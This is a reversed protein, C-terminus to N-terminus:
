VRVSAQFLYDEQNELCIEDHLYIVYLPGKPKLSHKKVYAAMRQPLDVADGYYGRAYGVLYKGAPKVDAGNPDVSFFHGPQASDDVFTEFDDFMGGVPFRLDIGKDKARNCFRTFADYFYSSDGFVNKDGVIIRLEEMKEVSLAKEDVNLGSSIMDRLTHIIDFSLNLRKLEEKLENEKEGLLDYIKEPTRDREIGSIRKM